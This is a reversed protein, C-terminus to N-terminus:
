VLSDTEGDTSVTAVRNDVMADSLDDDRVGALAFSVDEDAGAHGSWDPACIVACFDACRAPRRYPSPVDPGPAGHKMDERTTVNACSLRIHYAALSGASLLFVASVILCILSAPTKSVADAASLTATLSLM